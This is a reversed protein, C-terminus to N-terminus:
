KVNITYNRDVAANTVDLLKDVTFEVEGTSSRLEFIVKVPLEKGPMIQTGVETQEGFLYGEHLEIGDQFATVGVNVVFMTPSTGVNRWDFNLILYKKGGSTKTTFNKFKVEVDGYRFFGRNKEERATVSSLANIFIERNATEAATLYFAAVTKEGVRIMTMYGPMQNAIMEVLATKQGSIEVEEYGTVYDQADFYQVVRDKIEELTEPFTIDTEYFNFVERSDSKCKASYSLANYYFWNNPLVFDFNNTTFRLDASASTILLCVLVVTLILAFFRKM